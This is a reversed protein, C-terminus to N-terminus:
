LGWCPTQAIMEAALLQLDGALRQVGAPIPWCSDMTSSPCPAGVLISGGSALAISWISGDSPRQDVGYVLTTGLAFDAKVEPDALDAVITSLSVVSSAGCDPLTPACSHVAAADISSSGRGNYNRTITLGTTPDLTYQDVYAVMGGTAGFTVTTPLMCLPNADVTPCGVYLCSAQGDDMCRCVYCDVQGPSGDPLVCTPAPDKASDRPPSPMGDTDPQADGPREAPPNGDSSADPVAKTDGVTGDDPRADDTAPPSYGADGLCAGLTCAVEGPSTCTCTNCGDTAPFSTGAPHAKGAYNCTVPGTGLGHRACGAFVALIAFVTKNM